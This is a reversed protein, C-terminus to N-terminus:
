PHHAPVRPLALLNPLADFPFDSWPVPKDQENLLTCPYKHEMAQSARSLMSMILEISFNDFYESTYANYNWTTTSRAHAQETNLFLTDPVSYQKIQQYYKATAPMGVWEPVNSTDVVGLEFGTASIAQLVNEMQDYETLDALSVLIRGSTALDKLHSYLKEDYLYNFNYFCDRVNVPRKKLCQFGFDSERVVDKWWEWNSGDGLLQKIEGQSQAARLAWEEKSDNLRLDFYDELDTSVSLLARNIKVFRIIIPDIDVVYLMDARTYAAGMFSRESGVSLYVGSNSRDYLAKGINPHQENPDVSTSHAFNTCWLVCVLFVLLPGNRYTFKQRTSSM